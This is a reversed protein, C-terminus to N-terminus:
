TGLFREMHSKLKEIVREKKEAYQNDPAFPSVASHKTYGNGSGSCLRNPADYAPLTRFREGFSGDDRNICDPM